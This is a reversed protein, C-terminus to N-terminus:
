VKCIASLVSSHLHDTIMLYSFKVRRMPNYPCVACAATTQTKGDDRNNEEKTTARKKQQSRWAEM